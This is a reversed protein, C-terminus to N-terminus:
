KKNNARDQINGRGYIYQGVSNYGNLGLCIDNQNFSMNTNVTIIRKKM